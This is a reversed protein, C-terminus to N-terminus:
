RLVCHSDLTLPDRVGITEGHNGVPVGQALDVLVHLVHLAHYFAEPTLSVGRELPSARLHSLQQGLPARRLQESQASMVVEAVTCASWASSVM